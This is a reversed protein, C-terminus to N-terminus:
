RRNRRAGAPDTATASISQGIAVASPTDVTFSAQGSSDTTVSAFTLFTQGQGYGSPDATPDSFFEVRYTTNAAGALSGTIATIGNTDIASSLVPFDQFLNPGTHGSSDNLTVGDNGLDIGIGSNAYIANELIADGNSDDSVDAGVTVGNGGNFAIVNGAGAATGGITNNSAGAEIFIGDYGNSLPHEGSSDVGIYNGAVLNNSTGQGFITLGYGSNGSIINRAGSATGGITNDTAGNGIGLGLAYAPNLGAANGANTGIYTGEVLNNSTGSDEIALNGSYFQSTSSTGNGAIVNAATSASGGITNNSAGSDIVVGVDVNGLASTANVNTGILNGAVLTGTAGGTIWVGYNGNASIVNGAITADSASDGSTGFNGVYVGSYANGLPKTGTIDTGIKNGEVVDGVADIGYIAVGGQDNGSIVNGAGPTSGGVTINPGTDGLFVGWGVNPLAYTGSADTGILNGAILNDETDSGNENIGGSNASIVNGAGQVTGGITIHSAGSDVHVGDGKNGLAKAGSLDTGILNGEVAIGSAGSGTIWVGYGANASIVNGAGATTGGITNDSAGSIVIGSGTNGTITSGTISDQDGTVSVGSGGFGTIGLGLIAVGSGQIDLGDATSGAGSGDINLDEITVDGRTLAPLASLPSITGISSSNPEIIDQGNSLPDLNVSDIANRLSGPGQDNNNTVYFTSLLLYDELVEFFPRLRRQTGRVARARRPRKLCETRDVRHFM